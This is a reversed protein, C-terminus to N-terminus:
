QIRFKDTRITKIYYWTQMAFLSNQVKNRRFVRLFVWRMGRRKWRQLHPSGEEAWFQNSGAQVCRQPLKPQAIHIKIKNMEWYSQLNAFTIKCQYDVYCSTTFAVSSVTLLSSSSLHMISQSEGEKRSYYERGAGSHLSNVPKWPKAEIKHSCQRYKWSGMNRFRLRQGKRDPSHGLTSVLQRVLSTTLRSSLGPSASSDREQLAGGPPFCPHSGGTGCPQPGFLEWSADSESRGLIARSHRLNGKVCIINILGKATLFM